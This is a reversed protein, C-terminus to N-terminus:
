EGIAIPFAIAFGALEIAVVLLINAIKWTVGSAFAYLFHSPTSRSFLNALFDDNVCLAGDTTEGFVSSGNVVLFPADVACGLTNTCNPLAPLTSCIVANTSPFTASGFLLCLSTAFIFLGVTYLSYFRLFSLKSIPLLVSWSGTFVPATLM